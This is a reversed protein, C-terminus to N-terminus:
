KKPPLSGMQSSGFISQSATKWGIKELVSLVRRKGEPCQKSFLTMPLSPAASAEQCVTRRFSLLQRSCIGKSGRIAHSSGTKNLKGSRSKEELKAAAKVDATVEKSLKKM